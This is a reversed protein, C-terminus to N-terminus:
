EVIGCYRDLREPLTMITYTRRFAQSHRYLSHAQAVRLRPRAFRAIADLFPVRVSAHAVPEGARVPQPDAASAPAPAASTALALGAAASAALAVLTRRRPRPRSPTLHLRTM